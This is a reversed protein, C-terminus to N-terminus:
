ITFRKWLDEPSLASVERHFEEAERLTEPDNVIEDLEVKIQDIKAVLEEPLANLTDMEMKTPGVMRMNTYGGKNM